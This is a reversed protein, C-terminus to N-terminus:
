FQRQDQLIHTIREIMPYLDKVSSCLVPTPAILMAVFLLQWKDVFSGGRCPSLKREGELLRRADHVEANAAIKQHLREHIVLRGLGPLILGAFNSSEILANFGGFQGRLGIVNLLDQKSINFREAQQLNTKSSQTPRQPTSQL